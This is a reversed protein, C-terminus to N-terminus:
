DYTAEVWWRGGTLKLLRAAGQDTTVQLRVLRRHAGPDWWREDVPWPGAWAVIAEWGGDGIRLRSPSASLLSRGDVTVGAGAADVVEAPLPQLHVIAPAPDPVRGPWPSAPGPAPDGPGTPYTV